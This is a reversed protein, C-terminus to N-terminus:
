LNDELLAPIVVNELEELRLKMERVAKFNARLTTLSPLCENVGYFVKNLYTLTSEFQSDNAVTISAELVYNLTNIM